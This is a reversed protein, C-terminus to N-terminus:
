NKIYSTSTDKLIFYTPNLKNYNFDKRKVILANKLYLSTDYEGEYEEINISSTNNKEITSILWFEYSAAWTMIVTDM